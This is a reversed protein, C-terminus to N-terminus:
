LRAHAHVVCFYTISFVVAWILRATRVDSLFVSEVTVGLPTRVRVGVQVVVLAFGTARFAYIRNALIRTRDLESASRRTWRIKLQVGGRVHLSADLPAVVWVAKGLRCGFDASFCALGLHILHIPWSLLTYCAAVTVCERVRCGTICLTRWLTWIKGWKIQRIFSANLRARFKVHRVLQVILALQITSLEIIPWHFIFFVGHLAKIRRTTLVLFSFKSELAVIICAQTYDYHAWHYPTYYDDADDDHTNRASTMQSLIYVRGRM